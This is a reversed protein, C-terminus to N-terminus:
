SRVPGRCSGGLYRGLITSHKNEDTMSFGSFMARCVDVQLRRHVRRSSTKCAFNSLCGDGGAEAKSHCGARPSSAGESGDAFSQDKGQGDQGAAQPM